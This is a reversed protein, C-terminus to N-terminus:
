LLRKINANITAQIANRTEFTIQHHFMEQCLAAFSAAAECIKEIIIETEQSTLEAEQMGLAMVHKREIDLAEGMVDMQHYGGPGDCYTVDYAPAPTWQGSSAMLYSFNKPHEQRAPFKILWNELDPASKTTFIGTVPDRCLLAKPSAGQPSGGMQMLRQLFEGGEGDLVEQVESALQVLPIDEEPPSAEPQAPRFSMAGMANSGIYTLRELPGIRAANLGRQRFLRDMLLMGWGDPLSDYVPAPLGLQHISFERRLKSGRLPLTYSSLELGKRLAEDSYEFLIVPRGTLATSSVLTGWLWHESWGEYYVEIKDPV